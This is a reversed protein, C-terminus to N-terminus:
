VATYLRVFSSPVQPCPLHEPEREVEGRSDFYHGDIVQDPVQLFCSSLISPSRQFSCGEQQLGTCDWEKRCCLKLLLLKIIIHCFYFLDKSIRARNLYNSLNDQITVKINVTSGSSALLNHHNYLLAIFLSDLRIVYYFISILLNRDTYWIFM